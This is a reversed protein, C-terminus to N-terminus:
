RRRVVWVGMGLTMITLILLFGPLFLVRPTSGPAVSPQYPVREKDMDEPGSGLGSQGRLWAACSNFLDVHDSGFRSQIIPDSIWEATGFVVLRAEGGRDLGAHAADQPMGSKSESVTVALPVPKPLLRKDREAPNGRLDAILDSLKTKLNPEGILNQNVYAILLTDVNWRSPANPQGMGAKVTRPDQMVFTTPQRGQVFARAVPNNSDPNTLALITVFLPRAAPQSALLRENGVRVNFEALIPEIGIQGMKAGDEVIGLCVIARGPKKRDKGQLYDRLAKIGNPPWKQTPGAIVLLDADEPIAKLNPDINLEKTQYNRKELEARLQSVSSEKQRPQFPNKVGFDLEGNGQTFYITTRTKGEALFRMAKMLASEGKFVFRESRGTPDDGPMTYLDSRKVFEHSVNPETGYLVLLGYSDPLQYDRILKMLDRQNLDRSMLEWTIRPNIARCNNLLTEVESAVQDNSSMLVIIKVPEKLERLFDKSSDSLSYIRSQTWDGARKFYSFPVVDAYALVNVLFLILIVLISSFVANYGYLLRRMTPHSREQSRALQLGFFVLLLGGLIAATVRALMGVNKRWQEVGGSFVDRYETTSFPLLLGFLATILGAGGLAILLMTRLRDSEKQADGPTTAFLIAYATGLALVFLSLAIGWALVAPTELKYRWYTAIPVATLALGLGVLLYAIQQRNATLSEITMGGDKAPKPQSSM